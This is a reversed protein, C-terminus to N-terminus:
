KKLIGLLLYVGLGMLGYKIYKTNREFRQQELEFAAQAAIAQQEAVQSAYEVRAMPLTMKPAELTPDTLTAKEMYEGEPTMKIPIDGTPVEWSLEGSDSKFAM